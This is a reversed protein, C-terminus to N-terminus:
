TAEGLMSSIVVCCNSFTKATLTNEIKQTSLGASENRGAPVDIM